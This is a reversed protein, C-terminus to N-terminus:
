INEGCLPCRPTGGSYTGAEGHSIPEECHPCSFYMDEEQKREVETFDPLSELYKYINNYSYFYKIDYGKTTKFHCVKGNCVKGQKLKVLLVDKRLAYDEAKEFFSESM